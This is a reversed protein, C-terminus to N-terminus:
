SPCLGSPDLLGSLRMAMGAQGRSQYSLGGGPPIARKSAVDLAAARRHPLHGVELQANGPQPMATRWDVPLVDDGGSMGDFRGARGSRWANRWLRASVPRARPVRGRVLGRM